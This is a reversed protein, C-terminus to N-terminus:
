GFALAFDCPQDPIRALYMMGGRYVKWSSKKEQATLYNLTGRIVLESLLKEKCGHNKKAADAAIPL